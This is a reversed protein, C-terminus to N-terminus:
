NTSVRKSTLPLPLADPPTPASDRQFWPHNLANNASIRRLPSFQLCSTLLDLALDSAAQPPFISRWPQPKRAEFEKYGPLYSCGPWINPSNLDIKQTESVNKSQLESVISAAINSPDFVHSHSADVDVKGKLPDIPTGLLRFIEAAQGIITEDSVFLPRRLLLEALVCGFSWMDIAPSHTPAGFLLEPPRYWITVVNPSLRSSVEDKVAVCHGFDALKLVGRHTLLCNAPKIDRHMLNSAHLHNMGRLLQQCIGKVHAETLLISKDRIINELDTVCLELVLNIRDGYPFSEYIRLINEHQIEQLTQLEKIAGLNIGHQYSEKAVRKIAVDTNTETDTHKYVEAFAGKGLIKPNVYRRLRNRGFEELSMKFFYALQDNELFINYFRGYEGSRIKM